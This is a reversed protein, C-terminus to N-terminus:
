PQFVSSQPPLPHRLENLLLYLVLIFSIVYKMTKMLIRIWNLKRDFLYHKVFVLQGRRLFVVIVTIVITDRRNLSGTSRQQHYQNSLRRPYVPIPIATILNPSLTVVSPRPDRYKMNRLRTTTTPASVKVRYELLLINTLGRRRSRTFNHM